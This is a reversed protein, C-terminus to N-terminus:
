CSLAPCRTAYSCRCRPSSSACSRARPLAQTACADPRRVLPAPAPHACTMILLAMRRDVSLGGSSSATGESLINLRDAMAVRRQEVYATVSLPAPEETPADLWSFRAGQDRCLLAFLTFDAGQIRPGHDFGVAQELQSRPARQRSRLTFASSQRHLRVEKPVLLFTQQVGAWAETSEYQPPVPGTLTAVCSGAVCMRTGAVPLRWAVRGRSAHRQPLGALQWQDQGRVDPGARRPADPRQRPACAHIVHRAQAIRGYQAVHRESSGRAASLRFAEDVVHALIADVQAAPVPPTLEGNANPRLCTCVGHTRAVRLSSGPAGGLGGAGGRQAGRRVAARARPRAVGQRAHVRGARGARARRVAAGM